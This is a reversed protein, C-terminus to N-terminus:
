WDMQACRAEAANALDDGWYLEIYGNPSDGYIDFDCIFSGDVIIEDTALREKVEETTLNDLELDTRLKFKLTAFDIGYDELIDKLTM